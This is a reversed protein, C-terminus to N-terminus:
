RTSNTAWIQGLHFGSVLQSCSISNKLVAAYRNALRGPGEFPYESSDVDFPRM